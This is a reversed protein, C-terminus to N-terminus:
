GHSGGLKVATLDDIHTAGGNPFDEPHVAKWERWLGPLPLTRVREFLAPDKKQMRPLIPLANWAFPQATDNSRVRSPRFLIYAMLFGFEFCFVAGGLAQWWGIVGDAM